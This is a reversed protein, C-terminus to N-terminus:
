NQVIREVNCGRKEKYISTKREGNFDKYESLKMETCLLQYLLIGSFHITETLSVFQSFFPFMNFLLVLLSGLIVVTIPGVWM